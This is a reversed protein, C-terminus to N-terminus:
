KGRKKKEVSKQELYELNTQYGLEFRWDKGFMNELLIVEHRSLDKPLLGASMHLLLNETETLIFDKM